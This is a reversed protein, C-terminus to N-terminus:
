KIKLRKFEKKWKEYAVKLFKSEQDLEKIREKLTYFNDESSYRKDFLVISDKFIVVSEKESVFAIKWKIDNENDLFDKVNFIMIRLLDFSRKRASGM